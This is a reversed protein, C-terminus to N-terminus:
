REVVVPETIKFESKTEVVTSNPMLQKIFFYAGRIWCIIFLSFFLGFVVHLTVLLGYMFAVSFGFIVQNTKKFPTTAPDSIMYFTYLLFAVGSMPLLCPILEAGLFISRIVAQLAFGVLWAIILHMKM